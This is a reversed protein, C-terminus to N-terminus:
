AEFDDSLVTKKIDKKADSNRPTEICTPRDKAVNFQLFEMLFQCYYQKNSLLVKM